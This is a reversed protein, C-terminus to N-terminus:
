GGPLSFVAPVQVFLLEEVHQVYVLENKELFSPITYLSYSYSGM